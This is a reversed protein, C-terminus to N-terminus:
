RSPPYSNGAAMGKYYFSRLRHKSPRSGLWTRRTSRKRSFGGRCPRTFNRSEVQAKLFRGRHLRTSVRRAPPSIAAEAGTATAPLLPTPVSSSPSSTESAPVAATVTGTAFSRQLPETAAVETASPLVTRRVRRRAPASPELLTKSPEPAAPGTAGATPVATATRGRVAVGSPTRTEVATLRRVIAALRAATTTRAGIARAAAIAANVAAIEKTRRRLM